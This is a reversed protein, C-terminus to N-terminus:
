VRSLVLITVTLTLLRLALLLPPVLLILIGVALLKGLYKDGHEPGAATM